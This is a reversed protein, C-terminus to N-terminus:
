RVEDDRNESVEGSSLEAVEFMAALVPPESDSGKLRQFVPCRALNKANHRRVERVHYFERGCWLCFGIALM